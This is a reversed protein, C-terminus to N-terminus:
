ADGRILSRIRKVPWNLGEHIKLIIDANVEYTGHRIKSIFGPTVGLWEALQRDFNFGLEYMVANFLQGSLDIDEAAEERKRYM